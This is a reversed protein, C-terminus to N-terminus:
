NNNPSLGENAPKVPFVEDPKQLVNGKINLTV